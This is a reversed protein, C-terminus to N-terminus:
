AGRLSGSSGLRRERAHQSVIDMARGATAAVTVAAFAWLSTEVWGTLLGAVPLVARAARYGLGEPARYGLSVAKAREYAATLAAGLGLLALATVRPETSRWVWALPGLLFADFLPDLVAGAFRSRAEGSARAEVTAAVLGAASSAAILGAALPHRTLILASSLAALTTSSGLFVAARTSRGYRRRGAPSDRV